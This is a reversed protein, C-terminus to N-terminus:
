LQIIPGGATQADALDHTVLIVPVNRAKIHQFVFSRIEGQLAVDLNSFPEDLLLAKPEALLTQLLAARIRQGGSLTDPDREYFGALGAQALSSDIKKRRAVKGKLVPTLGFALNDGVSLHPFLIGDQFLIGINRKEAPLNTVDVGDLIIKGQARFWPSLHGSISDLLTSKGIGSPGMITLIQGSPISFSLPAFLASGSLTTVTVNQLTLDM